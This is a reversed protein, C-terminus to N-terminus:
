YSPDLLFSSAISVVNMQGPLANRFVASSWQADTCGLEACAKASPVATILRGDITENLAAWDDTTPFGAQGPQSRCRASVGGLVSLVVLGIRVSISRM